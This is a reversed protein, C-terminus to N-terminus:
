VPDEKRLYPVLAGGGSLPDVLRRFAVHFAKEMEGSSIVEGTPGARRVKGEDLLILRDTYRLAMNLDHLVIGVAMGRTRALSSVQELIDVQHGVDLHATPEDLLLIDPEQALSRAIIVRQAEGGSLETVRREALPLVGALGMSSEVVDRDRRSWSSLFGQHAYRGMSVVDRVSFPFSAPSSQPVVAIRRAVEARRLRLVERGDLLVRGGSPQLKGNACKLLTSKGSGNPGVFGLRVGAELAFSVGELAKKGGYSFHLDIAELRAGTGM